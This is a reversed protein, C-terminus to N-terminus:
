YSGSASSDANVGLGNNDIDVNGGVSASGSFNEGESDEGSETLGVGVNIVGNSISVKANAPIRLGVGVKGESDMGVRANTKIKGGNIKVKNDSKIEADAGERTEVQVVPALIYQGNGTVHLSEDLIFDFTATATKNEEVVWNANIKLENSPLKAENGGNADVVVVKSIILRVQNYEEAKLKIDAMVELEGSNRLEILDFTKDLTSVTTWGDAESHAEIKDVTVLVSSVSGLGAAADTIAFVVRGQESNLSFVDKNSFYFYAVVALVLIVLVLVIFGAQAKKNRM